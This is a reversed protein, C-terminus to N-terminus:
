IKLGCNFSRRLLHITIATTFAAGHSNGQEVVQAGEHLTRQLLQLHQEAIQLRALAHEGVQDSRTQLGGMQARRLAVQRHVGVVETGLVRVHRERAAAVQVDRHALVVIHLMSAAERMWVQWAQDLKPAARVRGVEWQLDDGHEDRM